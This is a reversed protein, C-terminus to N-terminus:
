VTCCHWEKTYLCYADLAFVAKNYYWVFAFSCHFGKCCQSNTDWPSLNHQRGGSFGPLKGQGRALTLSPLM